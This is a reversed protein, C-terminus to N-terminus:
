IFYFCSPEHSDTQRQPKPKSPQSKLCWKSTSQPNEPHCVSSYLIMVFTIYHKWSKSSGKHSEATQDLRDCMQKWGTRDFIQHMLVVCCSSRQKDKNKKKVNTFYGPVSTQDKLPRHQRHNLGPTAALWVQDKPSSSLTFSCQTM